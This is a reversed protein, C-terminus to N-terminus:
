NKVFQLYFQNDFETNNSVCGFVQKVLKNMVAVMAQKHPKGKARLRQYLDKCALNFRIASRAAMYLNARVESCGRKSIRGKKFVSTGSYHSAPVLGLFKSIQRAHKFHDFNGVALLLSRATIKGIGIVSQIHRLVQQHAEDSLEDLQEELQQIQQHVTDLTMELAQQAKFQVIPYQNLAHLQNNLMQRQKKLANLASLLQKRQQTMADQKPYLALDLRQGMLALTHAAQQDHKSIIGQAQAFGASRLPDVLSLAVEKQQLHYVLSASYSGTPELVCLSRASDISNLWALIAQGTNAIQSPCSGQEPLCVLDLTDKSVDIGYIRDYNMM